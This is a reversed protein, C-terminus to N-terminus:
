LGMYQKVRAEREKKLEEKEKSREKEIEDVEKESDLEAKKFDAFMAKMCEECYFATTGGGAGSVYVKLAKKGKPIKNRYGVICEKTGGRCFSTGSAIEISASMQFGKTPGSPTSGEDVPYSGAARAM